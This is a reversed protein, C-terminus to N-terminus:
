SFLYKFLSYFGYCISVIVAIILGSLLWEKYFQTQREADTMKWKDKKDFWGM